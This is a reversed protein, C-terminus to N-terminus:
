ASEGTDPMDMITQYAIIDGEKANMILDIVNLDLKSLAEMKDTLPNLTKIDILKWSKRASNVKKAIV